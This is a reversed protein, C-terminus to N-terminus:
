SCDPNDKKCTRIGILSYLPCFSFVATAFPVISILAIWWYPTLLGVAVLVIGIVLRVIRDVAGMNKKILSM